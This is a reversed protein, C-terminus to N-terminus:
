EDEEDPLPKNALWDLGLYSLLFLGLSVLILGLGFFASNM